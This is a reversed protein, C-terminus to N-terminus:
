KNEERELYKKIYWDRNREVNVFIAWAIDHDAVIETHGGKFPWNLPDVPDRGAEDLILQEFEYALGLPLPVSRLLCGDQRLRTQKGIM